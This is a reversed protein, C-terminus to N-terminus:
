CTPTRGGVSLYEQEIISCLYNLQTYQALDPLNPFNALAVLLIESFRFHRSNDVFDCFNITIKRLIITVYPKEFATQYFEILKTRWM